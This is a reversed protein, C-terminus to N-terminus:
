SFQRPHRRLSSDIGMTFRKVGESQRQSLLMTSYMESWKATSGASDGVYEACVAQIACKLPGIGEIPVLDDGTLIPPEKKLLAHYPGADPAFVLPARYKRFRAGDVEVTGYDVFERDGANIGDKYLATKDVVSWGRSGNRFGLAGAYEQEDFSVFYEGTDSNIVFDAEAVDVEETTGPWRGMEYVQDVAQQVAEEITISTTVLSGFRACAQSFTLNRPM